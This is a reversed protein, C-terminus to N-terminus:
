GEERLYKVAHWDSGLMAAKGPWVADKGSQDPLRGAQSIQRATPYGPQGFERTRAAELIAEAAQAQRRERPSDGLADVAARLRRLIKVADSRLEFQYGASAWAYGGIDINATLEIRDFGSERYWQELHANWARAFGQDHAEEDDLGLYEHYAVLAGDPDRRFERVTSGIYRGHRNVIDFATWTSGPNLEFGDESAKVTLGAYEGELQETIAATIEDARDAAEEEDSPILSALSPRSPEAVPASLPMAPVAPEAAPGAPTVEPQPAAVPGSTGLVPLEACRCRPHLPVIPPAGLPHAGAKAAADCVPCVKDDEATSIEVQTRGTEAYVQRAATAQARAIEAQAVLEARSPNDLVGKLRSALDQVSLFPPLPGTPKRRIEDSRLTDELVQSLEELRSDAISKIRINQEALLQRLGPGAIQEAAAYDGPKWTGWDPDLNNVAALASRNGLVWGETLMHTLVPALARRIAQGARSLFASLAPNIAKTAHGQVPPADYSWRSTRYSPAGKTVNKPHLAQWAEALKDTDISGAIAAQVQPAYVSM